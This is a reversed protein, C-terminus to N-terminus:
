TRGFARAGKGLRKMWHLLGVFDIAHPRARTRGRWSGAFAAAGFPAHIESRRYGPVAGSQVNLSFGVPHHQGFVGWGADDDVLTHIDNLDAAM